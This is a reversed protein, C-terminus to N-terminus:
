KKSASAAEALDGQLREMQKSPYIRM